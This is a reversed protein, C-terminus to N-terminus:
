EENKLRSNKIQEDVLDSIRAKLAKNEEWLREIEEAYEGNCGQLEDIMAKLEAKTFEDTMTMEGENVTAKGKM